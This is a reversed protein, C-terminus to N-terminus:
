HIFNNENQLFFFPAARQAGGSSFIFCLKKLYERDLVHILTRWVYLLCGKFLFSIQTWRSRWYTLKSWSLIKFISNSTFFITKQSTADDDCGLLCYDGILTCYSESSSTVFQAKVRFTSAATEASVNTFIYSIVSQLMGFFLLTFLNADLNLTRWSWAPIYRWLDPTQFYVHV